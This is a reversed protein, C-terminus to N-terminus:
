NSTIEVGPNSTQLNSVRHWCHSKMASDGNIDVRRTIQISLILEHALHMPQSLMLKVHSLHLKLEITLLDVLITAVKQFFEGSTYDWKTVPLLKEAWSSLRTRSSIITLNNESKIRKEWILFLHIRSMQDCKIVKEPWLFLQFSFLQHLFFMEHRLFLHQPFHEGM